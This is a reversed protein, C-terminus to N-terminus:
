VAFRKAFRHAYRYFNYALLLQLAAVTPAVATRLVWQQKARVSCCENAYCACGLVLAAVTLREVGV